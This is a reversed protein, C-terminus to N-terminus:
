QVYGGSKTDWYHITVPHGNLQRAAIFQEIAENVPGSPRWYWTHLLLNQLAPLVETESEEALEQLTPAVLQVSHASYLTVKRVATFSHLLERLQIDEIEGQRDKRRITIELSELTPLSSLFSNLVQVLASFQWDLPRCSIGLSLVQRYHEEMEERKSLRIRISSDSCEVRATHSTMFIETRRIFHGLVPTDFVLQNFFYFCSQNLTPTEIQSLVDEL